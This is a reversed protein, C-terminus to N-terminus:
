APTVAYNLSIWKQYERTTVSALWAENDLYWQVCRRMGTNFTEAPAWSLERRIKSADIAYRRDHGPRDKVFTILKAYERGPALEHLIACIAHVVELNSMQANGGITYTEGPRGRELVARIASCHDGVYLWDRINRGDGYVPLPKGSLAHVIMLPVLKEPFQLPGYNNSCNTTLVPLGYTHHYARALHDAAAKSASYPSNPAYPTSECFPPDDPNLTGYVEDTSVHLFRLAGREGEPLANWYARAADLLTFTGVVNTAIFDSPGHISRDVHSEAAFNVIARPRHETLLADVLARDAIDGRVFVHRPDGRLSALSGLNGAYTLKDLNVIPEDSGSLWDLVFNAGIFGAGGTVLIM